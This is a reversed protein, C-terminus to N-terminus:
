KRALIYSRRGHKFLKKLLKSFSFIELICFFDIEIRDIFRSFLYNFRTYPFFKDSIGTYIQEIITLPKLWGRLEFEFSGKEIIAFGGQEALKALEDPKYATHLYLNGKTGQHIGFSKMIGLSILQPRFYSYNPTSVFVQGGKKMIQYLGKIFELPKDLHEIVECAIANDVSNPKIFEIERLDGQIFNIHPSNSKGRKLVSFSIDIGFVDGKNWSRSLTGKNCGCDLLNGAPMLAIKSGIWKKRLIGSLTTYVIEDEPYCKGVLEYFRRFHEQM